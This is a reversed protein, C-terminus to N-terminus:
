NNKTDNKEKILSNIYSNLKNFNFEISHNANIFKKLNNSYKNRKTSDIILQEFADYWGDASHALLGSYEHKIFQSSSLAFDSIVPISMQSFVYIRGPNTSYKYRMKYDTYNKGYGRSLLAMIRHNVKIKLGKNTIPKLNNVVGIDCKSLYKSYSETSWQIHKVTTKKPLGNKWKGLLNINYIAWFEIDYKDSLRDLTNSITPYFAHLHLKNGHYGIITKQKQTHNKQQDVVDPFMYYIVINKNLHLMADKQEISGVLLFDANKIEINKKRSFKPDMIGIIARPNQKKAKLVESDNGMFLVLDYKQYNNWDNRVVSHGVSKLRPVLDEVCVKTGASNYTTNIVIDKKANNTLGTINNM